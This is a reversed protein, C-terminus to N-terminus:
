LKAKNLTLIDTCNKVIVVIIVWFNRILNLMNAYMNVNVYTIHCLVKLIISGVTIRKSIASMLCCCCCLRMKKETYMLVLLVTISKMLKFSFYATFPIHCIDEKVGQSRNLYYFLTPMNRHLGVCIKSSDLIFSITQLTYPPLKYIIQPNFEGVM